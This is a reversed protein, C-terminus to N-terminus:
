EKTKGVQESPSEREPHCVYVQQPEAWGKLPVLGVSILGECSVHQATMRDCHIIYGTQKSLAQLRSALNICSGIASYDLKRASGFHGALVPGSALGIGINLAEDPALLGDAVLRDNVAKLATQIAIACSLASTQYDPRDVPMNWLALLGDGMFKDVMGQHAMVQETAESFLHNIIVALRDPQKHYRHSMESFSRIDMMLATIQKIEGGTQPLHPQRAIQEVIEPALFASFTQTIQRRRFAENGGKLCLFALHHCALVGSSFVFNTYVSTFWFLSLSSGAVLTLSALSVLILHSFSLSSFRRFVWFCILSVVGGEALPIVPLFTVMQASLLQYLGTLHLLAGPMDQHHATTHIDGLGTASSGIIIFSNDPLGDFSGDLVSFAPLRTFLEPRLPFLTMDAVPSIRTRLAGIHLTLPHAATPQTIVIGPPGPQSQRIMEVSLSSLLRNQYIFLAPLRRVVDGSIANQSISRTINVVAASADTTFEALPSILGNGSAAAPLQGSPLISTINQASYAPNVAAGTSLASALVVTFLGLKDALEADGDRGIGDFLAPKVDWLESLAQPSYRDPESLLIDLGVVEPQFPSLRELMRALTYRPWPWQGYRKLSEDDIDIFILRDLLQQDPAPAFLSTLLDSSLSATTQRITSPLSFLLCGTVLYACGAMLTTIGPRQM